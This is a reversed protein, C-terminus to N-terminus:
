NQLLDTWSYVTLPGRFMPAYEGVKRGQTLAQIWIMTLNALVDRAGRESIYAFQNVGFADTKLLFPMFLRALLQDMAKAMQSLLHVM